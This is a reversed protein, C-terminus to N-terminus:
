PASKEQRWAGLEKYFRGFCSHTMGIGHVIKKDKVPIANYAAYVCCPPCTMDSFGVAVRVPCRIRAAFNAGDFYPANREAAAIRERNEGQAEILRPWGSRRGKRYGMTDTLAPVFLTGKTFHRNLGLLYLGFGGGQSTGAYTFRSLDVEPRAALWNVARNIGLIARYFYYDERTASAIGATAYGSPGFRKRLNRLNAKYRKELEDLDFPPEYPHVTMFMCITDPSGKMNNTHRARGNGAAPVQIHVPYKKTASADKPISLYGYVRTGGWTAFSIRWFNFADTTREPLLKLQPDAPVTADLRKIADAWFADFDAPTPSGKEIREPEYAASFVYPHKRENETKPLCLRLFGPEKLSGSIQFPNAQALDFTANTQVAPGFNDLSVSVTGATASHGDLGLVTVTFVATEGCRYLCDPKDTSVNYTFSQAPAFLAFGVALSFIATRM